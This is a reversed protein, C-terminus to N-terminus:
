LLNNKDMISFVSEVGLSTFRIHHLYIKMELYLNLVVLTLKGAQDMIINDIPFMRQTVPGKHLSNVLWRYIGEVFALSVSNQHKGQDTGSYLNLLCDHPQRNFVSDYENHCWQLSQSWWVCGVEAILVVVGVAAPAAAAPQALVNTTM